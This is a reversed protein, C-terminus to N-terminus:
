ALRLAMAPVSAGEAEEHAPSPLSDCAIVDRLQNRGAFGLKPYPRYLHTSVTRPSLFLRDGIQRNTLGDSALRVIQRQQPNSGVPRRARGAPRRGGGRAGEARSRGAAGMVRGSAAPLNGSGADTGAQRRQHPAAPAAMRRLRPSPTSARIAVPRRRPRSLAPDFYAEQSPRRPHWPRPRHAARAPSLGNRASPQTCARHRRARGAAPRRPGRSRRSRGGGPLLRLQAVAHRRRQVTRPAPHVSPPLQRRRSGRRRPCAPGLRSDTRNRRSRRQRAGPWCAQTGRRLRRMAM